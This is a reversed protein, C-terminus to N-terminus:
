SQHNDAIILFFNSVTQSKDPVGLGQEIIRKNLCRWESKNPELADGQITHYVWIEIPMSKGRFNGIKTIFIRNYVDLLEKLFEKTLSPWEQGVAPIIGHLHCMIAAEGFSAFEATQERLSSILVTEICAFDCYFVKAKESELEMIVARRWTKSQNCMTCCRDGVKWQKESQPKNKSYFKQIKDFLENFAKGQHVLSIYILSPSQYHLIKAELRLPGKDKAELDIERTRVEGLIKTEDQRKLVTIKNSKIKPKPEDLPSKNTVVTQEIKNKHFM